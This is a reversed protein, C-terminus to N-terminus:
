LIVRKIRKESILQNENSWVLEFLEYGIKRMRNKCTKGNKYSFQMGAFILSKVLEIRLNTM